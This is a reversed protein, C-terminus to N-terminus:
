YIICCTNSTKKNIDNNEKNLRFTKKRKSFDIRQEEEDDDEEEKDKYYSHLEYLEAFAREFMEKVNLKKLASTEIYLKYNGENTYKEGEEKSIERKELDIKNGVIYVLVESSSNAKLLNIWNDLHQFSSEKNVAFVVIALATNKYLKPTCASFDILGCTDWIQMTILKENVHATYNFIDFGITSKYNEKIDSENVLNQIITTKGVAPDGIVIVKYTIEELNSIDEGKEVKTIKYKSIDISNNNTKNDNNNEKKGIEENNEM